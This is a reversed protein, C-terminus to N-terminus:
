TVPMRGMRNEIQVTDPDIGLMALETRGARQAVDVHNACAERWEAAPVGLAANMRWRVAVLQTAPEGCWHCDGREIRGEDRARYYAMKSTLREIPRRDPHHEVVMDMLDLTPEPEQTRTMGWLLRGDGARYMCHAPGVTIPQARFLKRVPFREPLDQRQLRLAVADIAQIEAVDLDTERLRDELDDPVEMIFEDGDVVLFWDGPKAAALAHAFLATRKEAENRQWVCAPVHLTCAMNLNRAGLTWAAHQSSPSAANGNPYLAYAGDLAIVHDVRARHLGVLCRAINDPPEDYFSVLGHLM